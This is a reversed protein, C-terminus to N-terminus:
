VSKYPKLYRYVKNQIIRELKIYSNSDPNKLVLIINKIVSIIQVILKRYNTENNDIKSIRINPNHSVYNYMYRPLDLINNINFEKVIIEEYNTTTELRINVDKISTYDNIELKMECLFLRDLTDKLDYFRYTFESGGFQKKLNLYKKKYLRYKEYEM